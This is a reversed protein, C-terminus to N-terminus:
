ILGEKRLHSHLRGRLRHLMSKVKSETFGFKEALLAVPAVFWYRLVFIDREDKSLSSLFVNIARELERRDLETQADGPAPVCEALEDLALAVEGGGRKASRKERFKNLSLRRTIKGLFASLIDPYQPPMAQWARLYTDSVCEEADENVALINYAISYCYRGYKADTEAIAKESRAWYLEIISKDDM